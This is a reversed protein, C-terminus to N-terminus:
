WRVQVVKGGGGGKQLGGTTAPPVNHHPFGIAVGGEGQENHQLGFESIKHRNEWLHYVGGVSIHYKYGGDILSVSIIILFWLIFVGRFTKTCIAYGQVQVDAGVM